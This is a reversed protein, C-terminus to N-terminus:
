DPRDHRTGKVLRDLLPWIDAHKPLELRWAPLERAMAAAARFLNERFSAGALHSAPYERFARYLLPTATVDVLRDLSVEAAKNLMLLGQLRVPTGASLRAPVQHPPATGVLASWTPMPSALWAGNGQPWVLAADDALVQWGAPATGLTTTKGGGPPALFLLGGGNRNVLGGHILGGGRTTIDQLILSWPLDFRFEGLEPNATDTWIAHRTQLSLWVSNM